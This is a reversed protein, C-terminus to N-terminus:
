FSESVPVMKECGGSIGNLRSLFRPLKKTLFEIWVLSWGPVKLHARKRHLVQGKMWLTPVWPSVHLRSPSRNRSCRRSTFPFSLSADSGTAPCKLRGLWKLYCTATQPRERCGPLESLRLARSCFKIKWRRFSHCFAISNKLRDCMDWLYLLSWSSWLFFFSGFSTISPSISVLKHVFIGCTSPM